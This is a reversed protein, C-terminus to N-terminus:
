NGQRNKAFGLMNHLCRGQQGETGLAATSRPLQADEAGQQAIKIFADELTCSSIGWSTLVQAQTHLTLTPNPTLCRPTPKSSRCTPAQRSCSYVVYSALLMCPMATGARRLLRRVKRAAILDAFVQSLKTDRAPLEFTFTGALSYTNRYHPSLKAM